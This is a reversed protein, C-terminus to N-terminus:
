VNNETRTFLWSSTCNKWRCLQCIDSTM